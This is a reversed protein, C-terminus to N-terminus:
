GWRGDRYELVVLGVMGSAAAAVAVAVVIVVALSSCAGVVVVVGRSSSPVRHSGNLYM